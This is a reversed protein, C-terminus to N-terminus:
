EVSGPFWTTGRGHHWSRLALKLRLGNFVNLSAVYLLRSSRSDALLEDVAHQNAFPQAKM